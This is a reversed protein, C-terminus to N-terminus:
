SVFCTATDTFFRELISEERVSVRVRFPHKHVNESNDRNKVSVSRADGICSHIALNITNIIMCVAFANFGNSKIQRLYSSAIDRKLGHM